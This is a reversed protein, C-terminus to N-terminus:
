RADDALERELLQRARRMRSKITGVPLGTSEALAGITLREWYHLELLAQLQPPLRRLAAQVRRREQQRALVRSPSPTHDEVRTLQLEETEREFGHDRYHKRLVNYAIGLLFTRFSSAGEYRPLAEVCALITRQVLDNPERVKHAFLRAVADYHRVLLREGAHRDGGRWAHVLATDTPRPTPELARVDM